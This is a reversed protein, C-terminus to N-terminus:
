FGRLRARHTSGRVAIGHLGLFHRGGPGVTKPTDGRCSRAGISSARRSRTRTASERVVRHLPLRPSPAVRCRPVFYGPLLGAPAQFPFTNVTSIKQRGVLRLGMADLHAERRLRHDVECPRWADAEGDQADQEDDLADCGKRQAEAAAGKGPIPASEPRSRIQRLEVPLHGFGVGLASAPVTCSSVRAFIFGHDGRNPRIKSRGRQKPGRHAFAEICTRHILGSNLGWESVVVHYSSSRRLRLIRSPRMLVARQCRLGLRIAATSFHHHWQCGGLRAGGSARAWGPCGTRHQTTNTRATHTHTRLAMNATHTRTHLQRLVGWTHVVLRRGYRGDQLDPKYCTDLGQWKLARVEALRMRPGLPPLKANNRPAPPLLSHRAGIGHM